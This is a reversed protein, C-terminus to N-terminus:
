AEVTGLFATMSELFRVGIAEPTFRDHVNALGSQVLRERELPSVCVEHVLGAVLDYDPARAPVPVLLQREGATERLATVATSVVPVGLAQAEILPVCFGEHESLNLYVHTSRFISELEADSVHEIWEIRGQIGLLEELERLERYYSALEPDTGGVMRCTLHADPFLDRWAAVTRLVHAHGKNPARRGVFLAVFPGAPLYEVPPRDHMLRDVRNFPPVVECRAADVGLDVLEAANYSSDSQWAVINSVEALRRTQERGERCKEAYRQSYSEFYRAPTINHYKVVVVGSFSRIIAEGDRWAISHHYLLVDFQDAISAFEALHVIRCRAKVDPHVYQCLIAVEHGRRALLDYSGAVDNGIADGAWVTQHAIAIRARGACTM